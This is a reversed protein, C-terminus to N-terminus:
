KFQELADTDVNEVMHIMFRYNDWATKVSQNESLETPFMDVWVSNAPQKHRHLGQRRPQLLKNSEWLEDAIRHCEDEDLGYLYDDRFMYDSIVPALQEKERINTATIIFAVDDLDVKGNVIDRICRGLSFGIKM